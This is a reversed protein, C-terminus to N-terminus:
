NCTSTYDVLDGGMYPPEFQFWEVCPEGVEYINTEYSFCIGSTSRCKIQTLGYGDSQTKCEYLCIDGPGPTQVYQDACTSTAGFPGSPFSTNSGAPEEATISPCSLIRNRNKGMEGYIRADWWQPPLGEVPRWAESTNLIGTEVLSTPEQRCGSHLLVAFTWGFAWLLLRRM